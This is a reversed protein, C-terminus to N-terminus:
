SPVAESVSALRIYEEIGAQLFIGAQKPVSRREDKAIRKLTERTAEDLETYVYKGKPDIM